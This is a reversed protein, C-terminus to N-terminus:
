DDVANLALRFGLYNTKWDPLDKGRYAGRAVVADGPHGGGRNARETGVTDSCWEAVNGSMDCLNWPHRAVKEYSGVKTTRGISEGKKDTGYPFEGGCNARDGNLSSGWYYPRTNGEGGRYAYEWEDETPLRLKKFTCKNLFVQVDNWSVIEVPFDATNIGKVKDSGLGAFGIGSAQFWSPNEGVIDKYQSQTVEYKALWFGKTEFEHEEETQNRRKEGMPSGLTAKGAPIWCFKVKSNKSIAFERVEGPTPDSKAKAHFGQVVALTFAFIALVAIRKRHSM